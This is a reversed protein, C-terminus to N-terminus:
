MIVTFRRGTGLVRGRTTIRRGLTTTDLRSGTMTSFVGASSGCETARPTIIRNWFAANDPARFFSRFRARADGGVYDVGFLGGDDFGAYLSLIQPYFRLLRLLMPTGLHANDTLLAKMNPAQSAIGVIAYMPDYLLRIRDSVKDGTEVIQREAAAVMLETSKRSNYWIIGGALAVVILVLLATIGFYVPWPAERAASATSSRAAEPRLRPQGTVM